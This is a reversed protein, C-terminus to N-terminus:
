EMRMTVTQKSSQEKMFYVSCLALGALVLDLMIQVPVTSASLTGGCGCGTAVDGRAALAVVFVSLLIVAGILAVERVKSVLLGVSVWAESVIVQLAVVHSWGDPIIPYSYLTRVFERYDIVKAVASTSFM